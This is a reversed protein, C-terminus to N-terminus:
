LCSQEWRSFRSRLLLSTFLRFSLLYTLCFPFLRRMRCWFLAPPCALCFWASCLSSFGGTKEHRGSKVALSEYSRYEPQIHPIEHIIFYPRKLCGMDKIWADCRDCNARYDNKLDFRSQRRMRKTFIKWPSAALFIEVFLNPLHPRCSM